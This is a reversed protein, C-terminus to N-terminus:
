TNRTRKAAVSGAALVGWYFQVLKDLENAVHLKIHSEWVQKNRLRISTFSFNDDLLDTDLTCVRLTPCKCSRVALKYTRHASNCPRPGVCQAKQVRRSCLTPQLSPIGERTLVRMSNMADEEVKDLHSAFFVAATTTYLAKWFGEQEQKLLARTPFSQCTVFCIPM